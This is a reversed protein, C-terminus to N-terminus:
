TKRQNEIKKKLWQEENKGFSDSIFCAVNYGKGYRDQLLDHTEHVDDVFLSTEIQGDLFVIITGWRLQSMPREHMFYISTTGVIVEIDRLLGQYYQRLRDQKENMSTELQKGRSIIDATLTATETEARFMAAKWELFATNIDETLKRMIREKEKEYRSLTTKSKSENGIAYYTDLYFQPMTRLIYEVETKFYAAANSRVVNALAHYKSWRNMKAKAQTNIKVLWDYNEIYEESM